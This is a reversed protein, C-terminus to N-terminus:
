EGIQEDIIQKETAGWVINSKDEIVKPMPFVPLDDSTWGLVDSLVQGNTSHEQIKGIIKTVNIVTGAKITAIEWFGRAQDYDSTLIYKGPVTVIM